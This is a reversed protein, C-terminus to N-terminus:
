RVMFINKIYNLLIMVLQVYGVCRGCRCCGCADVDIMSTARSTTVREIEKAVDVSVSEPVNSARSLSFKVTLRWSIDSYLLPRNRRADLEHAHLNREHWRKCLITESAVPVSLHFAAQNWRPRRRHM